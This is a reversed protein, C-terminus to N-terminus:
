TIKLKVAPSLTNQCAESDLVLVPNAGGDLLPQVNSPEQKDPGRNRFVNANTCRYVRAGTLSGSVSSVSIFVTDFPCSQFTMEAGCGPGLKSENM